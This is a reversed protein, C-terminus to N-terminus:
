YPIVTTGSCPNTYRLPLAHPDTACTSVPVFEGCRCEGQDDRGELIAVELGNAFGADFGLTESGCERILPDRLECLLVGAVHNPEVPHSGTTFTWWLNDNGSYTGRWRM